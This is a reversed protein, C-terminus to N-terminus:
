GCQWRSYGCSRQLLPLLVDLRLARLRMATMLFMGTRLTRNKFVGLNVIPHDDILERSSSSSLAASRRLVVLTVIFHSGFWDEEQGKDLVIQLAGIGVALLGIGWYDIGTGSRGSTPRTSSSCRTMLSRHSASPCTSTSSGAGVTTTPSGAARVPGLIPAVVIGLAWFAMAKGRKQPPFTELLIAQSLPQLGGGSAGQIVRFVILDAPHARARM